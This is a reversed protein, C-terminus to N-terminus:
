SQWDSMLSHSVKGHKFPPVQVSEMEPSTSTFAYVQVHAAPQALGAPQASQEVSTSSHALTGHAFLANHVSEFSGFPKTAGLSNEQAQTAPKALPM